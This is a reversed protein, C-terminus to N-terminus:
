GTTDDILRKGMSIAADEAYGLQTYFAVARLNTTRIQLNVKPCGIALLRREVEAMLEAGLGSGQHAPDVALYNVWGRHGDYGAMVSGTIRGDLGAVLFMSDDVAVKRDIDREPNNWSRILECADWLEIVQERDSAVFERIVADTM